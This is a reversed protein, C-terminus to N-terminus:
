KRSPKSRAKQVQYELRVVGDVYRRSSLLKLRDLRRSPSILPIGKGIFVPIVHIIFKDVQGADLFAKILEAGGVLWIDKANRGKRLREAFKRVDQNVFEVKTTTRPKRSFVYNKKGEYSEVGFKLVVDYTKRGMIVSDITKFFAGMGHDGASKPLELWSVDGDPRAIYGDASTAIYVIIKRMLNAPLDCWLAKSFERGSGVEHHSGVGAYSKFSM